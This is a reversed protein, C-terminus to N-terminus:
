VNLKIEDFLNKLYCTKILFATGHDYIQGLRKEDKHVDINFNVKIIGKELLFLFKDFSKFKYFLFQEYKFYEHEDIKKCDAMILALYTFKWEIHSKLWEFSWSIDVDIKRNKNDLVILDLKKEKYNVNLKLKRSYGLSTFEKGNITVQLVKYNSNWKSPYGITALLRKIPFLYDGDPTLTMLHLNRRSNKRMTKIEINNFDAYPFSDEVKGLLKEFTYGIGGPGNRLSKVWDMEKIVLFKNYLEMVDNM